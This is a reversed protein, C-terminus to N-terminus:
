FHTTLPNNLYTNLWIDMILPIARLCTVNITVSLPFMFDAYAIAVEMPASVLPRFVIELSKISILTTIFSIPFIWFIQFFRHLINMAARREDPILIFIVCWIAVGVFWDRVFRTM